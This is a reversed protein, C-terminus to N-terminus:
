KLSWGRELERKRGKRHRRKRVKREIDMGMNIDRFKSTESQTPPTEFVIENEKNREKERGRKHFTKNKM